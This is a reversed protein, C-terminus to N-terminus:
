SDHQERIRAHRRVVAYSVRTAEISGVQVAQSPKPGFSFLGFHLATGPNNPQYLSCAAVLVPAWSVLERHMEKKLLVPSYGFM